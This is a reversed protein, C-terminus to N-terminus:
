LALHTKRDTHERQAAHLDRHKESKHRGLVSVAATQKQGVQRIEREREKERDRHRRRFTSKKVLINHHHNLM